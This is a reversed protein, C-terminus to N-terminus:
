KMGNKSKIWKNTERDRKLENFRRHKKCDDCDELVSQRHNGNIKQWENRTTNTGQTQQENM